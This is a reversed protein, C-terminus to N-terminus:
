CASAMEVVKHVPVQCSSTNIVDFEKAPTINEKKEEMCGKDIKRGGTMTARQTSLIQIALPLVGIRLEVGGDVM